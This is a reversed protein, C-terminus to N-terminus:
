IKEGIKNAIQAWNIGGMIKDLPTGAKTAYVKWMSNFERLLFKPIVYDPDASIARRTKTVHELDKSAQDWQKETCADGVHKWRAIRDELNILKQLHKHEPVTYEDGNSLQLTFSIKRVENDSEITDIDQDSHWTYFHDKTYDSYQIRKNEISSIDYLFNEENVREVYHMLLGGIWHTAPIWSNKSYRIEKNINGTEGEMVESDILFNDAEIRKIDKVLIDVMEIPLQTQVWCATHAM